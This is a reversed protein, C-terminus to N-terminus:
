IYQHKGQEFAINTDEGSSAQPDGQEKQVRRVQVELKPEALDIAFACTYSLALFHVAHSAICSAHFLLLRIM